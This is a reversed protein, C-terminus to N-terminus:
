GKYNQAFIDWGCLLGLKSFSKQVGAYIGDIFDNDFSEKFLGTKGSTDDRAGMAVTIFRKLWVEVQLLWKTCSKKMPHTVQM